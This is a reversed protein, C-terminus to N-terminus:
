RRRALTVVLMVLLVLTLGGFFIASALVVPDIGSDKKEETKQPPTATSASSPLPTNTPRITPTPSVRRVVTAPQDAVDTATPVITETPTQTITATPPVPSATFTATPTPTTPVYPSWNIIREADSSFLWSNWDDWFATTTKGTLDQLAADFSTSSGISSALDAPADAGYREALYMVLMLSEAQWVVRERVPADPDLSTAMEDLSFLSDVQAASRTLPLMGSDPYPGYFAGLGREFWAPVSTSGWVGGYLDSTITAALRNVLEAYGLTTRQVLIMDAQEYVAAYAAEDCPYDAEEDNYISPPCYIPRPNYIVFEMGPDSGVQSSILDYVRGVEALVQRGALDEDYWHIILPGDTVTFWAGQGVDEFDFADGVDETTGDTLEVQWRYDVITFPSPFTDDGLSWRYELKTLDEYNPDLDLSPDLSTDLLTTEGEIATFKVSSIQDAPVSITIIFRITSPFLVEM